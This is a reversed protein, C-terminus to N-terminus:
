FEDRRFRWLAVAVFLVTWCATAAIPMGVRVLPRGVATLAAIDPLEWPMAPALLSLREQVMLGGLLVGVGIGAVPGSGRFFTGLMLTLVLYFQVHLLTLLVSTVFLVPHPASGWLIRSQGFFIVSPLAVALSLFSVAQAVLKALVFVDRRVPKSMIWAATGRQKEGTIASQTAVVAGFAAAQGMSLFFLTTVMQAIEFATLNPEKALNFAILLVLGNLLLPWLLLHVLWRRTAWWSGYEKGLLNSFGRLARRNKVVQLTRQETQLSKAADM